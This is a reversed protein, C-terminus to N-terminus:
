HVKEKPPHVIITPTGFAEKSKVGGAMFRRLDRNHVAETKAMGLIRPDNSLGFHSGARLLIASDMAIREAQELEELRLKAAVLHRAIEGAIARDCQVFDSGFNLVVAGDAAVLTAQLAVERALADVAASGALERVVERGDCDFRIALRPPAELVRQQYRLEAM